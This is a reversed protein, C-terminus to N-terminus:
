DLFVESEVRHNLDGQRRITNFKRRFVDPKVYYRVNHPSSELEMNYEATKRFSFPDDETSFM